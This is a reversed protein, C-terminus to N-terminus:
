LHIRVRDAFAASGAPRVVRQGDTGAGIAASRRSRDSRRRTRSRAGDGSPPQMARSSRNCTSRPLMSWRITRVHSSVRGSCWPRWALWYSYRWAPWDWLGAAALHVHDRSARLCLSRPPLGSRRRRNRHRSPERNPRIWLSPSQPLRHRPAASRANWPRVQSMLPTLFATHCSTCRVRLSMLAGPDLVISCDLEPGARAARGGPRCNACLAEQGHVPRGCKQCLGARRRLSPLALAFRSPRPCRASATSRGPWGAPLRSM